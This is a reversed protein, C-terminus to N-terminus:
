AKRGAAQLAARRENLERGTCLGCLLGARTEYGCRVCRPPTDEHGTDEDHDLAALLRAM